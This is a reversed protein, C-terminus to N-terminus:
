AIAGIALVGLVLFIAFIILAIVFLWKAITRTGAAIDTFGFIGAVVSILFFVLALKLM